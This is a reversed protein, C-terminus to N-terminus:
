PAPPPTASVGALQRELQEPESTPLDCVFGRCLYALTEGDRAARGELLPVPEDGTASPALAIEPRYRSWYVKALRDWAPGVIALERSRM